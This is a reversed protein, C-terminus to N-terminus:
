PRPFCVRPGSQGKRYCQSKQNGLEYGDLHYCTENTPYCTQAEAHIQAPTKGEHMVAEGGRRYAENLPEPSSRDGHADPRGGRAADAATTIGAARRDNEVNAKMAEASKQNLHRAIDGAEARAEKIVKGLTSDIGAKYRDLDSGDRVVLKCKNLNKYFTNVDAQTRWRMASYNEDVQGAHSERDSLKRKAQEEMYKTFSGVQSKLLAIKKGLEDDKGDASIDSLNSALRREEAVSADRHTIYERSLVAFETALARFPAAEGGTGNQADQVRPAIGEAKKATAGYASCLEGMKVINTEFGKCVEDLRRKLMALVTDYPISHNKGDLGQGLEQCAKFKEEIVKFRKAHVGEGGCTQTWQPKRRALNSELQKTDVPSALGKCGPAPAEQAFAPLALFSTFM